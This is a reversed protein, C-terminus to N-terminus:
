KVPYQQTSTYAQTLKNKPKSDQIKGSSKFSQCAPKQKAELTSPHLTRIM